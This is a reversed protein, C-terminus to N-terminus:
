RGTSGSDRDNACNSPDFKVDLTREIWVAADMRRNEVAYCWEKFVVAPALVQQQLLVAAAAPVNGMVAARLPTFEGKPLPVDYSSEMPYREDLPHGAEILRHLRGVSGLYAAQALNLDPDLFHNRGHVCVLALVVLSLALAFLAPAAPLIAIAAKWRVSSRIEADM